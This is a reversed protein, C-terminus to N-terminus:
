LFLIGYIKGTIYEPAREVSYNFYFVFPDVFHCKWSLFICQLQLHRPMILNEIFPVHSDYNLWDHLWLHM